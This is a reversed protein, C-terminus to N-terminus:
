GVKVIVLKSIVKAKIVVLVVTGDKLRIRLEKGEIAKLCGTDDCTLILRILEHKLTM